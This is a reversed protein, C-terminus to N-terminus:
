SVRLALLFSAGFALMEALLYILLAVRMTFSYIVTASLFLFERVKEYVYQDIEEIPRGLYDRQFPEYKAPLEAGDLLNPKRKPLFGYDRILNSTRLNIKELSEKTFPRLELSMKPKEERRKAAAVAAQAVSGIGAATISLGDGKMNFSVGGGQFDSSDGGAAGGLGGLQPQPQGAPKCTASGNTVTTATDETTYDTNQAGGGGGSSSGSPDYLRQHRFTDGLVFSATGAGQGAGGNSM